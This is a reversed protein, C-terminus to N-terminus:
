TEVAILVFVVRQERRGGPSSHSSVHFMVPPAQHCEERLVELTPFISKGLAQLQEGAPFAMPDLGIAARYLYGGSVFFGCVLAIILSLLAVGRPRLSM